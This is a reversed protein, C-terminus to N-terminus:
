VRQALRGSHSGRRRYVAFALAGLGTWILLSAPEPNNFHAGALDVSLEDNDCGPVWFVSELAVNSLSTGLNFTSFDLTLEIFAHQGLDSAYNYIYSEADGLKQGSTLQTLNLEVPVNHAIADNIWDSSSDALWVSGATKDGSSDAASITYGHSNLAYTTGNDGLVVSGNTNSSNGAGGGVEVGITGISTMIRIDGPSFEPLGNDPRQGVSIAIHLTHGDIIVGLFEGDYNQGGSYPGLYSSGGASDSSDEAHYYLRSGSGLFNNIVGKNTPNAPTDLPKNVIGGGFSLHQNVDLTVGWDSLDGDITVAARATSTKAGILAALAYVVVTLGSRKM